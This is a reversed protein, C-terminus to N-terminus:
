DDKLTNSKRSRNLSKELEDYTCLGIDMPSKSELVAEYLGMAWQDMGLGPGIAIVDVSDIIHPLNKHDSELAHAMIEPRIKLITQANENRTIVSVLGAGTRLAAEATIRVAGGM